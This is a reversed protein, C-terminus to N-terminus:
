PRVSAFPGDPRVIAALADYPIVVTQAGMAYPGVQYEDFNIVLGQPSINWSQYNQPTPLVGDEFMLLNRDELDRRCYASLVGLYDSGENFLDGLQIERGSNLDHNLVMSQSSPHAGGLYSDVIFRISIVGQEAYSVMYDISTSRPGVGPLDEGLWERGQASRSTVLDYVRQNFRAAIQDTVDQIYPAYTMATFGAQVNTEESTQTILRMGNGVDLGPDPGAFTLELAGWPMSVKLRVDLDRYHTEVVYTEQRKTKPRQLHLALWQPGWEWEPAILAMLRFLDDPAALTGDEASDMNYVQISAKVISDPPGYLWLSPADGEATGYAYPLGDPSSREAMSFELESFASQLAERSLGLGWSIPTETLAPAITPVPPSTPPPASTPLSTSSTVVTREAAPSSSTAPATAASPRAPRVRLIATLSVCALTITVAAAFVVLKVINAPARTNRPEQGGELLALRQRATQNSPNIALVRRLCDEVQQPEDVAESLLLWAQEDRSNAAIAQRLLGVAGVKNGSRLLEASQDVRESSPM